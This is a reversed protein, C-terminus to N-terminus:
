EKLHKNVLIHTFLGAVLLLLSIVLLLNDIFDKYSYIALIVVAAIIMLVGLNKILYKM